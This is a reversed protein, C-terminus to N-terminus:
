SSSPRARRRRAAVVLAGALGVAAALALVVGATFAAPWYDLTVTHRGPPIRAQFMVGDYPVLTLPRGDIAAHWGPVAALHLRLVRPGPADTTVRWSAPDPHTVTAASAPADVHPLGGGPALPTLTAPAAGPVRYLAEGAVARVFTTGAPPRARGAELVYGIGFRRATTADRIAPCLILPAGVAAAPQGTAAGFARFTALPTMPDYSALEHLGFVVNVDQHVGLTPPTHCDRSGFGVTAPGVTRVLLAEAPTPSVFTPSSSVLPAGAAVLFATEGALLLVGAWALTRTGGAAPEPTHRGRVARRGRRQALAVGGTVLLGLATTAVPWVFSRARISAEAPPLHGRGVAWVLAVVAGAAGFGIWAGRRVLGEQWSRVLADMGVGSLVALALGMEILSRHWAVGTLGTLGNVVSIVPAAFAMAAMVLAVAAWARVEPRRWRGVLAVLGLAVAIVGVYAATEPYISNGFWRSGAVPLGDFGQFLVHVADHPPLAGYRSVARVVSAQAVQLGPLVLPAALAGGAVTGLVIDALPRLVPVGHGARRARWGLDVAVYVVLAIGMLVVAEPQGAYLAFAVAVALLAVHHARHRGRVILVAAAFIWGAWATAGANPWGLWGVFPGSLEYVTAATTAGLVGLRLVRGLVYVGTGAVLLTAVQVVTYALRVPFLYGLLTPLSFAASQWNFLLPVGLGSSPNWLPLHGHHVQTWALATWPIMQEIQDGPGTYHPTVGPQRSLGHRALQDFTGLSAGHALAPVLVAVAAAAVWVLGLVDPAARRLRGPAATVV